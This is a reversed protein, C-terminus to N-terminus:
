KEEGAKGKSRGETIKRRRREDRKSNGTQTKRTTYLTKRRDKKKSVKSRNM